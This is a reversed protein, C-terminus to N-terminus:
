LFVRFSHISSHFVVIQQIQEVISEDISSASDLDNLFDETNDMWIMLERQTTEFEVYAKEM